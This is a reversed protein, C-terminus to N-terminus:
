FFVVQMEYNGDQDAVGYTSRYARRQEVMTYDMYARCFQCADTYWSASLLEQLGDLPAQESASPLISLQDFLRRVEPHDMVSKAKYLLEILPLKTSGDVTSPLPLVFGLEEERELKRMQYYLPVMVTKLFPEQEVSQCLLQTLSIRLGSFRGLAGIDLDDESEDVNQRLLMCLIALEPMQSKQQTSAEFVNELRLGEPVLTTVPRPQQYIRYNPLYVIIVLPFPTPKDYDRVTGKFIVRSYVLRMHDARDYVYRKWYRSSTRAPVLMVCIKGQLTEEVSKRMWPEIASYPPNIYNSRGWERTLGDWVPKPYPCPDFDFHFEDDLMKYLEPPTLVEQKAEDTEGYNYTRKAAPEKGDAARKRPM